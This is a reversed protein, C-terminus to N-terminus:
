SSSSPVADLARVFVTGIDSCPTAAGTNTDYFLLSGLSCLGLQVPLLSLVHKIEGGAPVVVPDPDCTSGNIIMGHSQPFQNVPQPQKEPQSAQQQKAAAASSGMVLSVALTAGYTSGAPMNSQFATTLASITAPTLERGENYAILLSLDRRSRNKITCTVDFSQYLDVTDSAKEVIVDIGDMHANKEKATDRNVIQELHGHECNLSCWDLHLIGIQNPLTTTGDKVTLRFTKRLITKEQAMGKVDRFRPLHEPFGDLNWKAGQLAAASLAAPLPEPGVSNAATAIDEVYVSGRTQDPVLYVKTIHLPVFCEITAEVLWTHGADPFLSATRTTIQVDRTVGFNFHKSYSTPVSHIEPTAPRNAPNIPQGSMAAMSVPDTTMVTRDYNVTCVLSHLVPEKVVTSCAFELRQGPKMASIPTASTDVLTEILQFASNTQPRKQVDVRVKLMKVDASSTNVLSVLFCLQEGVAVRGFVSPVVLEETHITQTTEPLSDLPAGRAPLPLKPSNVTLRPRSLRMVRATIPQPIASNTGPSVPIPARQSRPSLQPGNM